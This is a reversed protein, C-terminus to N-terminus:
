SAKKSDEDDDGDVVLRSAYMTGHKTLRDLLIEGMATAPTHFGGKKIPLRDADLALCLGSEVLMRSTDLYGAERPFYLVSEVENGKVGKGRGWVTLYGKEMTERSPGEGTKPILADRLIRPLFLVTAGIVLQFWQTFATKFDTALLTEEYVLRDDDGDKGDDDTLVHSRGVVGANVAAMVFPGDWRGDARRRPLAGSVNDFSRCSRSGDARRKLPDFAHRQRPAGDGDVSLLVTALTGGSPGGSMTEDTFAVEALRDDGREAALRRRLLLTSLDWPVSDHGCFSVIKAGTTEATEAHSAIMNRHWDVEGTIDAYHTGYRACFEVVPAGYKEFPGATTAVARTNRVLDHLTSRNGTDVIITDINLAEKNGLHKALTEKFNELKFKSRGAVAWKVEGNVGYHEVLHEAALRGVFGTAGLLVLDYTRKELPVIPFARDDTEDDDEVPPLDARGGGLSSSMSSLKATITKATRALIAAPLLAGLWLPAGVVVTSLFVATSVVPIRKGDKEMRARVADFDVADM